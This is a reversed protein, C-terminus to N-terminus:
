MEWTSSWPRPKSHGKWIMGCVLRLIIMPLDKQDGWKSKSDWGEWYCMKICFATSMWSDMTTVSLALNNVWDVRGKQMTWTLWAQKSNAFRCSGWLANIDNILHGMLNITLNLWACHPAMSFVVPWSAGGFQTVDIDQPVKCPMMAMDSELLLFSIHQQICAKGTRLLDQWLWRLQPNDDCKEQMDWAIIWTRGATIMEVVVVRVVLM